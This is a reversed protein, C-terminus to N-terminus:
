ANERRAASPAGPQFILLQKKTARMCQQLFFVLLRIFASSMLFQQALLAIDVQAAIYM